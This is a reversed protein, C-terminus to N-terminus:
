RLGGGAYRRRPAPPPATLLLEPVGLVERAPVLWAEFASDATLFFTGAVLPPLTEPWTGQEARAIAVEVIAALALAQNRLPELLDAKRSYDETRWAEDELVLGQSLEISSFAKRRQEAPLDAVARMAEFMAANRRWVYPRLRPYKGPGYYYYTIGADILAQAESPLADVAPPALLDGYASLQQYVSEERLLTSLPPYGQRLRALQVRAERQRELPAAELAAACPLFLLEHSQASLEFGYVGAGLSLERSLALGDLCTDVAEEPRGEARLVQIELAALEVVRRLLNIGIPAEDVPRALSGLSEPLGGLEVRTTALVQHLLERHKRLLELCEYPATELPAEGRSVWQCQETLAADAETYADMEAMFAEDYEEEDDSESRPCTLESPSLLEIGELEPVLPTLAQSFRGAVPPDFHSPRPWDDGDFSRAERVLRQSLPETRTMLIFLVFAGCIFLVLAGGSVWLLVPNLPVSASPPAPPPPPANM